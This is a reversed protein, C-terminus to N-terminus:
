ITVAYTATDDNNAQPTLAEYLKRAERTNNSALYPPGAKSDWYARENAMPTSKAAGVYEAAAEAPKAVQGLADGLLGRISAATPGSTVKTALARLGAIAGTVDGKGLQLQALLM